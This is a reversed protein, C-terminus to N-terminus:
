ITAAPTIRPTVHRLQAVHQGHSRSAYGLTSSAGVSGVGPNFAEQEIWSELRFRIATNVKLASRRRVNYDGEGLVIIRCREISNGLKDHTQKCIMREAGLLTCAMRATM